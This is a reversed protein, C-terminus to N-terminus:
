EVSLRRKAVTKKPNIRGAAADEKMKVLKRELLARGHPGGDLHTRWGLPDGAYSVQTKCVGCWVHNAALKVGKPPPAIGDVNAMELRIREAEFGKQVAWKQNAMVPRYKFSPVPTDPSVANPSTGAAAGAATAEATPADARGPKHMFAKAKFALAATAHFGRGVTRRMGRQKRDGRLFVVRSSAVCRHLFFFVASSFRFVM